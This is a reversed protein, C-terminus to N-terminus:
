AAVHPSIMVYGGGVKEAKWGPLMYPFMENLDPCQTQEM